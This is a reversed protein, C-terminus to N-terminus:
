RACAGSAPKVGDEPGSAHWVRDGAKTEICYSARGAADVSVGAPLVAGSYTGAAAHRQELTRVAGVLRTRAADDRNGQRIHMYEPIAVALAIGLMTTVLGIELLSLSRHLRASPRVPM